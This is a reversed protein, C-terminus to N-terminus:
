APPSEVLARHLALVAEGARERALLLSASRPGALLEPVVRHAAPVLEDIVPVVPTGPRFVVSVLDGSARAVPPLGAARARETAEAAGAEEVAALTGRGGAAVARVPTEEDGGVVAAVRAPPAAFDLVAAHRLCGVGVVAPGDASAGADVVTGPGPIFSSRVVV